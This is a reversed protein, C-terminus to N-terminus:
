AVLKSWSSPRWLSRPQAPEAGGGEVQVQVQVALEQTMKILSPTSRRWLKRQEAVDRALRESEAVLWPRHARDWEELRELSARRRAENQKNNGSARDVEAEAAAVQDLASAAEKEGLRRELALRSRPSLRQPGVFPPITPQQM